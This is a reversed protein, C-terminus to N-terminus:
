AARPAEVRDQPNRIVGANIGRQTEMAWSYAAKKRWMFLYASGGFTNALWRANEEMRADTFPGNLEYEVLLTQTYGEREFRARLTWIVPLVLLYALSMLVHNVPWAWRGLPWRHFQEIHKKEHRLTKYKSSTSSSGWDSGVYMTSFITTTFSSYDQRTVKQLLWFIPALWSKDRSKVSFRPFEDKTKQSLIVFRDISPM